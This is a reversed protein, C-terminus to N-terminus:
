AELKVIVKNQTINGAHSNKVFDVLQMGSIVELYKELEQIAIETTGTVLPVFFYKM